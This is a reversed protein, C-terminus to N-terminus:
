IPQNDALEISSLLIEVNDEECKVEVDKDCTKEKEIDCNM